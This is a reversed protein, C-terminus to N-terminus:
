NIKNLKLKFRKFCFRKKQSETTVDNKTSSLHVNTMKKTYKEIKCTNGKKFIRVLLFKPNM